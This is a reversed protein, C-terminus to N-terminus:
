IAYLTVELTKNSVQLAAISYTVRIRIIATNQNEAHDIVSEFTELSVFPFWRTVANSIREIAQADFDDQSVLESVLPRLNAGFDYLFLREGWNCQLLNRLNDHVVDALSYHVAFIEQDGLRLPTKIGLPTLSEVIQEVVNQSQTKGVSKFSYTTM